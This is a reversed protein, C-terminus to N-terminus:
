FYSIARILTCGPRIVWGILVRTIRSPSTCDVTGGLGNCLLAGGTATSDDTATLGYNLDDFAVPGLLLGFCYSSEISESVPGLWPFQM